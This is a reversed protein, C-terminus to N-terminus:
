ADPTFLHHLLDRPLGGTRSPSIRLSDALNFRYSRSAAQLEKNEFSKWTALVAELNVVAMKNSLPNAELSSSSSIPITNEEGLSHPRDLLPSSTKTGQSFRTSVTNLQINM